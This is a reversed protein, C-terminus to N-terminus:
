VQERVVSIEEEQLKRRAESAGLEGELVKVRESERKVRLRETEERERAAAFAAQVNGLEAETEKLSGATRDLERRM